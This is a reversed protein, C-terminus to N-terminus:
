MPDGRKIIRVCGWRTRGIFKPGRKDHGFEFRPINKRWGDRCRWRTRNMREDCPKQPETELGALIAGGDVGFGASRLAAVAVTAGGRPDVLRLALEVPRSM